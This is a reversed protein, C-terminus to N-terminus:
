NITEEMPIELKKAKWKQYKRWAFKILFDIALFFLLLSFLLSYIYLLENGSSGTIGSAETVISFLFTCFVLLTYKSLSRM